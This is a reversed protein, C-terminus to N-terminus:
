EYKLLTYVTVSTIISYNKEYNVDFPSSPPPPPVEKSFFTNKLKMNLHKKSKKELLVFFYIKVPYLIDISTKYLQRHQYIQTNRTSNDISTNRQGDPLVTQALIDIYTKYLQRHQFMQTHRKSIDTCTYRHKEQLGTYQIIDIYTKYFQINQYM